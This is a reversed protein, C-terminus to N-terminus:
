INSKHSGRMPPWTPLSRRQRWTKPLGQQHPHPAVMSSTGGGCTRLATTKMCLDGARIPPKPRINNREPAFRGNGMNADISSLLPNNGWKTFKTQWRQEAVAAWGGVGVSPHPSHIPSPSSSSYGWVQTLFLSQAAPEGMIVCWHLMPLHMSYYSTHTHTHSGFM